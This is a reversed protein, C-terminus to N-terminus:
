VAALVGNGGQPAAVKRSGAKKVWVPVGAPHTLDRFAAAVLAASDPSRASLHGILPMARQQARAAIPCGAACGILVNFERRKMSGGHLLRSGILSGTRLACRM